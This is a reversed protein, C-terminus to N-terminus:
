GIKPIKIKHLKEPGLIISNLLTSKGTGTDGITIMINRTQDSNFNQFARQSIKRINSLTLPQKSVFQRSIEMSNIEDFEKQYFKEIKM